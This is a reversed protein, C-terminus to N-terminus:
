PSPVTTVHASTIEVTQMPVTSDPAAPVSPGGSIDVVHPILSTFYLTGMWTSQETTWAVESCEEDEWTTETAFGGLSGHQLVCSRIAANYAETWACATDRHTHAVVTGVGVGWPVDYAGGRRELAGNVGPAVIVIGPLEEPPTDQPIGTGYQRPPPLDLGTQREIEALYAPLWQQLLAQYAARVQGGTIIQGYLTGTV